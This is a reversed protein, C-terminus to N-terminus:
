VTVAYLLDLRGNTFDEFGVPDTSGTGDFVILLGSPLGRDPHISNLIVNKLLKIGLTLPNSNRDYIDLCWFSGRSNWNFEFLFPTNDLIVEESFSPEGSFPIIYFDM